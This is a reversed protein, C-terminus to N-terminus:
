KKLLKKIAKLKTELENLRRELDGTRAREARLVISLATTTYPTWESTAKTRWCLVGSFTKEEKM